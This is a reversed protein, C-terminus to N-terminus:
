CNGGKRVGGETMRGGRRGEGGRATKEGEKKGKRRQCNRGGGRKKVIDGM